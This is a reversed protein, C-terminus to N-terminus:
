RLGNNAMNICTTDTGNTLAIKSTHCISNYGCDIYQIHKQDANNDEKGKM